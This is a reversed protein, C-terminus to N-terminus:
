FTRPPVQVEKPVVARAVADEYAVDGAAVLRSLGMELTQMGDRQSTMIVNRLQATKGERVLNRVAHTAFMVEFAAVVGGGVRPVLRQAVVGSLVAALQVRVQAQRDTPFVDVVRDLATACDNTHLTAFVLHGTEAITLTTQISDQDRMEGVLLVDPDERLVSRLARPFSPTDVGVERQNVAAKKHRHVYELPDEITVIHCSRHENIWDLMSALSTTKGSGTPGTVLVLGQARTLLQEIQPPLGLEAMSPIELPILRLCLAVTGRQHFANGRFRARDQWTFAFDLEREDELQQAAGPSLCANVLQATDHATLPLGGDLAVIEGGVRYLPPAGETLLLDTAKAAWLQELLDDIPAPDVQTM